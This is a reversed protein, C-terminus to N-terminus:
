FANKIKQSLIKSFENASGKYLHNGDTYTYDGNFNTYDFFSIHKNISIQTIMNNFNQFYYNEIKYIKQHLPMRVLIVKGYNKLLDITKELYQMRYKSISFRKSNFVYEKEKLIIRDDVSKKDMPINVELWGDNHLFMQKHRKPLIIKMLNGDFYNLLYPLNPNLDVFKLKGTFTEKEPIKEINNNFESSISWPDVAIIFLGNRNKKDLKLNILNLYSEGFPSHLLTFSFNYIDTRNLEKNLVSPLIGQASRSTGIIMSSQKASTFRLYFPDTYGDAM